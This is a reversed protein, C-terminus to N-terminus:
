KSLALLLRSTKWFALHTTRDALPVSVGRRSSNDLDPRKGCPRALELPMTPLYRILPLPPPADPRKLSGKFSYLPATVPAATTAANGPLTVPPGGVGYPGAPQTGFPRGLGLQSAADDLGTPIATLFNKALVMVNPAYQLNARTPTGPSITRDYGAEVLVRLPADLAALIPPPLVLALPQLLPLLTTPRLYYTTDGVRDQLVADHFPTLVTEPHVLVAGLAANLDALLNLPNNPFDSVIDYQGAVDVTDFKTNTPTSGTATEGLISIGEFRSEIGGNPRNPNVVLVFSVDPPNTETALERKVVTAVAAGQSPGFVVLHDTYPPPQTGPVDPNTTCSLGHVCRSLNAAGEAVSQDLTRTGFFPFAEEPTVVAVPTCPSAGCFGSPEVYNNDAVSVFTNTVFPPSLPGGLPFLFGGVILATSSKLQVATTATPALTVTVAAAVAVAVVVPRITLRM